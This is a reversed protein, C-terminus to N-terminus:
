EAYYTVHTGPTGKSTYTCKDARKYLEDFTFRDDEGYFSVGVSVFIGTGELEKIRIAGIYELFRDIIVEGGSSREYVGPIFAAFEDGGLRMIIDDGRFAKKMCGAIAILVKDGVAHGFNDNFDKFKDVDLMMFMGGEGEVLRRRIRNEGCGRNNIGTMADTESLYQLRDRARKEEDIYEIMWIVSELVGDKDRDAAVFRGRCWLDTHNMFETTLIDSSGMREKITDLDTFELTDERSREDTFATIAERIASKAGTRRTGIFKRLDDSECSIEEFTDTKLNIKYMCVYIGAVTRLNAMINETEMRRLVLYVILGIIMLTGLIAVILSARLADFLSDFAQERSTGSVVYWGGGIPRSFFLDTKGNYRVSFSEKKEKLVGSAISHAPEEDTELYNLGDQSSDSHAVVEGDEDLVIVVSGAPEKTVLQETITGLENMKLDIAIVSESDSLRRAITMIVDGTQSDVYPAIYSLEDEGNVAETYWPRSTPVYDEDPIWGSGDMYEGKIYGYVGTTDANVERAYSDSEHGLFELIEENTAGTKFMHEVNYAVYEMLHLGPSLCDEYEVSCDKVRYEGGYEINDSMLRYVMMYNTFIILCLFLPLLLLLLFHKIRFNSIIEKFTIHHKIRNKSNTIDKM